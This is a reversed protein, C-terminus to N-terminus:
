KTLIQEYVAHYKELIANWDRNQQVWSRAAQGIKHRLADRQLLTICKTVLNDINEPQFYFGTVGNQILEALGSTEAALISKGLLMVELVNDCPICHEVIDLFIVLDMLSCLEHIQSAEYTSIPIINKLLNSQQVLRMVSQIDLNNGVFFFRIDPIHRTIETILRILLTKGDDTTPIHLFGIVKKNQLHYKQVLISNKAQTLLPPIRLTDVGDPIVLIKETEIGRSIIQQRIKESSTIVQEAYYMITTEQEQVRKLQRFNLNSGIEFGDIQQVEYIFPIEFATAIEYGVKGVQVPSTLHMLDPDFIKLTKLFLKRFKQLQFIKDYWVFLKNNKISNLGIVKIDYFAQLHHLLYKNRISGTEDSPKQTGFIIRNKVKSM